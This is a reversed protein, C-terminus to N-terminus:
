ISMHLATPKKHISLLLDIDKEYFKTGGIVWIGEGVPAIADLEGYNYCFKCQLNCKNTKRIATLGSGLLCSRCGDPFKEDQGVFLTRQELTKLGPIQAMLEENRKIVAAEIQAFTAYVIEQQKVM